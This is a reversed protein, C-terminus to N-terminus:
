WEITHHNGIKGHRGKYMCSEKSKSLSGENHKVHMENSKFCTKRYNKSKLLNDLHRNRWHFQRSTTDVYHRTWLQQDICM